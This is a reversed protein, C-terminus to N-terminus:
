KNHPDCVCAIANPVPGVVRARRCPGECSLPACGTKTLICHWEEEDPVIGPGLGSREITASMPLWGGREPFPVLLSVRKEESVDGPVLLGLQSRPLSLLEIWNNAPEELVPLSRNEKAWARTSYTPLRGSLLMGKVGVLERDDIPLSLREVVWRLDPGDEIGTAERLLKPDALLLSRLVNVVVSGSRLGACSLPPVAVYSGILGMPVEM